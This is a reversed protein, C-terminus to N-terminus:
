RRPVHAWVDRQGTVAQKGYPFSEKGNDKPELALAQKAAFSKVLANVQAQTVM